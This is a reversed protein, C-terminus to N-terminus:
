IDCVKGVMLSPAQLGVIPARTGVKPASSGDFRCVLPQGSDQYVEVWTRQDPLGLAIGMQIFVQQQQYGKTGDSLVNQDNRLALDVHYLSESASGLYILQNAQPTGTDQQVIRLLKRHTPPSIPSGEPGFANDWAVNCLVQYIGSAAPVPFIWTTKDSALRGKSTNTVIQPWSIKIWQDSPVTLGASNIAWFYENGTAAPAAAATGTGYHTAVAAGFLAAGGMLVSRRDPKDSVGAGM